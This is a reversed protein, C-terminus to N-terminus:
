QKPKLVARNTVRIRTVAPEISKPVNGPGANIRLKAPPSALTAEIPSKTLNNGPAKLGNPMLM